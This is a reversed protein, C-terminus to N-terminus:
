GYTSSINFYKFACSKGRATTVVFYLFAAINPNSKNLIVGYKSTMMPSFSTFDKTTWVAVFGKTDEDVGTTNNVVPAMIMYDGSVLRCVTPNKLGKCVITNKEDIPSTVYLMGFNDNFPVYEGNEDKYAIHVGNGIDVSYGEGDSERTYLKISYNDAKM